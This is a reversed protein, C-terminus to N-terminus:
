DSDKKVLLVAYSDQPAAQELHVLLRVYEPREHVKYYGAGVGTLATITYAGAANDYNLDTWTTGDISGEFDINTPAILVNLEMPNGGVHLPETAVAVATDSTVTLPIRTTRRM